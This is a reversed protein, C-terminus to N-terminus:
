TPANRALRRRTKEVVWGVRRQGQPPGLLSAYQRAFDTWWAVGTPPGVQRVRQYYAFVGPPVRGQPKTHWREEAAEFPAFPGEALEDLVWTPVAVGFRGAVERVAIWVRYSVQRRRSEAILTRWDDTGMHGVIVAADPVWRITSGKSWAWGHLVAVLLEDAACPTLVVVDGLATPVARDWVPGDLGDASLAVLRRHLDVRVGRDDIVEVAHDRALLSEPPILPDSGSWGNRLLVELAAAAEDERVVVDVDVISRAGRDGYFRAALSVGKIVMVDHGAAQLVQLAPTVGQVVRNHSLWSRRYREVLLERGPLPEGGLDKLAVYVLPLLRESGVDFQGGGDEVGPHALALWECWHARGEEGGVIAARILLEQAPDAVHAQSMPLAYTLWCEPEAVADGSRAAGM